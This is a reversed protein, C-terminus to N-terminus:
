PWWSGCDRVADTTERNASTGGLTNIAFPIVKIIDLLVSRQVDGLADLFWSFLSYGSRFQGDNFMLVTGNITGESGKAGSCGSCPLWLLENEVLQGAVAGLAKARSEEDAISRADELAEGLLVTEGALQGAVAGLAKARSEEDAISRAAALAEGLM